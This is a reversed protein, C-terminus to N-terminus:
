QPPESREAKQLELAVVHKVTEEPTSGPLPPAELSSLVARLLREHLPGQFGIAALLAAFAGRVKAARETSSADFGLLENPDVGMAEALRILKVFNAHVEGTFLKKVSSESLRMREALTKNSLKRSDRVAAMHRALERYEPRIEQKKPVDTQLGRCLKLRDWKKAQVLYRFITGCEAHERNESLETALLGGKVQDGALPATELACAGPWGPCRQEPPPVLADGAM